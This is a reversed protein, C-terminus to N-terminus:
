PCAQRIVGDHFNEFEDGTPAGGVGLLGLGKGYSLTFDTKNWNSPNDGTSAM